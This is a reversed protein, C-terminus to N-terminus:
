PGWKKTACPCAGLGPMVGVGSAGQPQTGFKDLISQFADGASEAIVAVDSPREGRAATVGSEKALYYIAVGALAYWLYQSKM